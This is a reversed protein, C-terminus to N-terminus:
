PKGDVFMRMRTNLADPESPLYGNIARCVWGLRMALRAAAELDGDYRERYPGLYAGLHRDLPESDEVDDIGWAIVGMLTVSLTFFPHSVCADGWDMVLHVDDRLFVQGDHCDDHEISDRIGYSALEGSLEAIRNPDVALRPDLEDRHRDLFEAYVETLRSLRLDPVGMALFADVDDECALQIRATAELVDLWRDLNGDEPVVERLRHGADAMLMWGSEVDAALLPPVREPMRQALLSVLAAEHRLPADNVKFWVDGGETPVRMVTAWDRVHPQEIEGTRTRGLDALRADIWGHAEAVFGPATWQETV